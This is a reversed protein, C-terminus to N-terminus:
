KGENYRSDFKPLCGPPPSQQTLPQLGRSLTHAEVAPPSAAKDVGKPLHQPDPSGHMAPAHAAIHKRHEQMTKRRM